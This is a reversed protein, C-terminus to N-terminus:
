RKFSIRFHVKLINRYFWILSESNANMSFPCPVTTSISRYLYTKPCWQPFIYNKSSSSYFQDDSSSALFCCSTLFIIKISWFSYIFSINNRHSRRNQFNYCFSWVLDFLICDRWIFPKFFNDDSPSAPSCVFLSRFIKWITRMQPCYAMFLQQFVAIHNHKQDVYGFFIIIIGFVSFNTM